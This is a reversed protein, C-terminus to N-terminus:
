QALRLSGLRLPHVERESPCVAPVPRTEPDHLVRRVVAGDAPPELSMGGIRRFGVRFRDTVAVDAVPLLRARFPAVGVIVQREDGADRATLPPSEDLPAHRRHRIQGREGQRDNRPQIAHAGARQGPDALLRPHLDLSPPFAPGGVLRDRRDLRVLSERRQRFRRVAIEEEVEFPVRERRVATELVQEADHVPVALVVRAPREVLLTLLVREFAEDVPDHRAPACCGPKWM